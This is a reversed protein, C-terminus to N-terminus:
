GAADTGEASGDDVLDRLSDLLPLAALDKARGTARKAAILDDLGGVRVMLGEGVELRVAGRDWDAFDVAPGAPELVLDLDGLDTTLTLVVPAEELFGADLPVDVPGAETRLRARLRILVDALRELNEADRAPVVDVDVTALEAGHVTAALGGILVYRVGGAELARCLGVPDFTM